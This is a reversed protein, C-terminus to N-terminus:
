ALGSTLGGTENNPPSFPIANFLKHLTSFSSM